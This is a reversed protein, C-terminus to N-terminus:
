VSALVIKRVPLTLHAQAPQLLVWDPALAQVLSSCLAAFSQLALEANHGLASTKACESFPCCDLSFELRDETSAATLAAGMSNLVFRFARSLSERAPLEAMAQATNSVLIEALREGFRVVEQAALGQERCGECSMAYELLIQSLDVFCGAGCGPIEGRFVLGLEPDNRLYVERHEVEIYRMDASALAYTYVPADQIELTEAM